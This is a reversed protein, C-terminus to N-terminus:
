RRLLIILRPPIFLHRDVSVTGPVRNLYMGDIELTGVFRLCVLRGCDAHVLWETQAGYTGAPLRCM